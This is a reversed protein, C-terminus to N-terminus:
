DDALQHHAVMFRIKAQVLTPMFHPLVELAQSTNYGSCLRLTHRIIHPGVM